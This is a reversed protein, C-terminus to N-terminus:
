KLSSFYAALNDIDADTLPKAMPIMTASMGGTRKGDRYDKLAGILYPENQGALNPYMPAIAIGNQGHCAACVAAKAKGAEVDGAAFSHASFFLAGWLASLALQKM